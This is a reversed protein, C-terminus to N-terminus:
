YWHFWVKDVGWGYYRNAFTKITNDFEVRKKPDGMIVDVNLFPLHTFKFFNIIVTAGMYFEKDDWKYYYLINNNDENDYVTVEDDSTEYEYHDPYYSEFLKYLLDSRKEFKNLQSETILYKM